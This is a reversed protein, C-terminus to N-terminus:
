GYYRNSQFVFQQQTRGWMNQVRCMYLDDPQPYVALQTESDTVGTTVPRCIDVRRDCRLWSLRGRPNGWNQLRPCHLTQVRRHKSVSWTQPGNSSAFDPATGVEVFYSVRDGRNNSCSWPGAHLAAQVPHIYM